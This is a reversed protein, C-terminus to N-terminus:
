IVGSRVGHWPALPKIQEHRKPYSSAHMTGLALQLHAVFLITVFRENEFTVRRPSSGKGGVDSSLEHHTNPVGGVEHATNRALLLWEAGRHALLAAGGLQARKQAEAPYMQLMDRGAEPLTDRHGASAQQDRVDLANVRGTGRRVQM